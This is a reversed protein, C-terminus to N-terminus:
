RNSMVSPTPAICPGATAAAAIRENRLSKAAYVAPDEFGTHRIALGTLVLDLGAAAVAPDISEHLRGRWRLSPLRPFLRVHPVSWEAAELGPERVISVQHMAYAAPEPDLRAHALVARLPGLEAPEILEDADLWMALDGAAHDLAANRAAAFDDCWAFDYVLAGASRALERTGDVSGTDVVIVEDFLGRV